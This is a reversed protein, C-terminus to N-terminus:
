EAREEKMKELDPKEDDNEEEEAEQENRAEEWAEMDEKKKAEIEAPSM